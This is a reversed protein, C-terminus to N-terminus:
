TMKLGRKEMFFFKGSKEGSKVSYSYGNSDIVDKKAKPERKFEKGIGLLSAFLKADDHGKKRVFRAKESSMAKKKSM